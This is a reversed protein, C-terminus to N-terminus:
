SYAIHPAGSVQEKAIEDEEVLFPAARQSTAQEQASTSDRSTQKKKRHPTPVAPETPLSLAQSCRGTLAVPASDEDLRSCTDEDLYSPPHIGNLGCFTDEDLGSCKHRRRFQM